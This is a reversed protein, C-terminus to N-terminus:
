CSYLFNARERSLYDNTNDAFSYGSSCNELSQSVSKHTTSSLWNTIPEWFNKGAALLLSHFRSEPAQVCITIMKYLARPAARWFRMLRTDIILLERLAGSLSLSLAVWNKGGDARSISRRAAALSSSVMNASIQLDISPNFANIISSQRRDLLTLCGELQQIILNRRSIISLRTFFRRPSDKEDRASRAGRLSNLPHELPQEKSDIEWGRLRTCM